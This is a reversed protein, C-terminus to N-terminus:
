RNWVDEVCGTRAAQVIYTRQGVWGDDRSATVVYYRTEGGQPRSNTSVLRANLRLNQGAEAAKQANAQARVTDESLQQRVAPCLQQWGKSGDRRVVSAVFKDAPVRSNQDVRNTVREQPAPTVSQTSGTAVMTVTALLASTLTPMLVQRPQM